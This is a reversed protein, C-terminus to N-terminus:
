TSDPMSRAVDTDGCARNHTKLAQSGILALPKASITLTKLRSTRARRGTEMLTTEKDLKLQKPGRRPRRPAKMFIADDRSMTIGRSDVSRKSPFAGRLFRGLVPGM